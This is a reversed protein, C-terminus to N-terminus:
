GGAYRGMAAGVWAEPSFGRVLRRLNIQRCRPCESFHFVSLYGCIECQYLKDADHIDVLPIHSCGKGGRLEVRRMLESKRLFGGYFLKAYVKELQKWSLSYKEVIDEDSMDSLMDGLVDAVKLVRTTKTVVLRKKM